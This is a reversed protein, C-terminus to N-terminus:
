DSLGKLEVWWYKKRREREAEVVVWKLIIGSAELSTKRSRTKRARTQEAM